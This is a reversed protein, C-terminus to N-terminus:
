GEAGKGLERNLWARALRWDDKATDKSIELAAAAEEVTLGGFFRLEVLKAQRESRRSLGELAEHLAMVEIPDAGDSGAQEIWTIQQQGGGRKQAGRGRAHDILVRRLTVAAIRLFQTREQRDVCDDDVLRFYAEHVLATAQLTHDRRERRMARGAIARLEGYLCTSLEATAKPDGALHSRFVETSDKKSATM